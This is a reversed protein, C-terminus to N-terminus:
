SEEIPFGDLGIKAKPKYNMDVITKQKHCKDCLGQRNSEIEEGGNDLAIIHDVQTAFVYIGKEACKVCYPCNALHAKRIEQLKRGRIRQVKDKRYPQIKM